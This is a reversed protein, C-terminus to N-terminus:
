VAPAPLVTLPGPVFAPLAKACQKPQTPRSLKGTAVDFLAVHGYAAVISPEAVITADVGHATCALTSGPIIPYANITPDRYTIQAAGDLDWTAAFVPVGPATYAPAGFTFITEDHNPAPLNAHLADLTQLQYQSALDYSNADVRVLHAFHIGTLATLIVAIVTALRPDAVRGRGGARIVALSAFTGIIMYVGYTAIVLGVAPLANVRNGVGLQLPSYWPVAPAYIAGAIATVALGVLTVWTWRTLRLRISNDRSIHWSAERACALLLAVLVLILTRSTNLPLLTHTFLTLLQEYIMQAHQTIASVSHLRQIGSNRAFSFLLVLVVALDAAWRPLADRRGARWWYLIGTLVIVTATSEYLLISAAYFALAGIHYLAARRGRHDLGRLAISVGLLYLTITVDSNTSDFWLHTADAYPYLLVLSAMMTAHVCKFGIIRLTLFLALSLGIATLATLAIYAHQHLGLVAHTLSLYVLYLPRNGANASNPLILSFPGHSHFRGLAAVAWDDYYFGGHTIHTGFALWGLGTLLLAIAGMERATPLAVPSAATPMPTHAIQTSHPFTELTLDAETQDM